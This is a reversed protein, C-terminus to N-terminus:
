LCLEKALLKQFGAISRLIEQLEAAVGERQRWLPLGTLPGSATLAAKEAAALSEYVQWFDAVQMQYELLAEAPPTTLAGILEKIRPMGAEAYHEFAEKLEPSNRIKGLAEREIMEVTSHHLGMAKGVSELSAGHENQNVRKESPQRKRVPERAQKKWQRKLWHSRGKRCADCIHRPIVRGTATLMPVYEFKARCKLCRVVLPPPPKM